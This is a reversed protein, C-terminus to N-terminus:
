ALTFESEEGSGYGGEVFRVVIKGSLREVFICEKGNLMLREKRIFKPMAKKPASVKKPAPVKKPEPEVSPEPKVEEVQPQVKQEEVVPSEVKRSKARTSTKKETQKAPAM